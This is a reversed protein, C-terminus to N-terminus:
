DLRQLRLKRLQAVDSAGGFVLRQLAALLQAQRETALQPVAADFQRRKASKPTTRKQRFM